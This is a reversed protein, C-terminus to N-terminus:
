SKIKLKETKGWLRFWSLGNTRLALVERRSQSERGQM